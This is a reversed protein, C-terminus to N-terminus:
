GRKGKFYMDLNGIHYMSMIFSAVAILLLIHRDEQFQAILACTALLLVWTLLRYVEHRPNM